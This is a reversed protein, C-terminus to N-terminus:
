IRKMIQIKSNNANVFVKLGSKIFQALDSETGVMDVAPINSIACASATIVDAKNTCVVAAPATKNKKLTYLVYAGVSSGVANPFFLITRKISKGFLEHEQNIITGSKIDVMTLFNISQKTVLSLGRADGGVIKRCRIEFNM